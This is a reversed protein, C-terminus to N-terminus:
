KFPKEKMQAFCRTDPAKSPDNFFDVTMQRACASQSPTHSYGAFEYLYGNKLTRLARRGWAPPTNPDFEGAFILTPIDSLLPHWESSSSAPVNWVNCIGLNFAASDLGGFQPFAVHTQFDVIARDALPMGDACWVSYRMGWSLDDPSLDDQAMASLATFDGHAAQFIVRPIQPIQSIDNLASYITEVASRGDFPRSHVIGDKTKIQISIPNRYLAKLLNESNARLNPYARECEFDVACADFVANLARELNANGMEDYPVDPPEVSELLVSRVAVPDTRMVDMMVWTSYSLGYLNWSSLKLAKRLDVLDAAIERTNYASLDVGKSVLRDHCGKAAELEQLEAEKAGYGQLYARQHEEDVEPCLLAPQAYRTGRQEFVIFDRWDLLKISKGSAFGGLSSSGPGGATFIIPDAQPTTRRSRFIMLPLQVTASRPHDRNEPVVLTFCDIWEDKPVKVVCPSPELQPTTAIAQSSRQQAVTVIPSTFVILLAVIALSTRVRQEKINSPERCMIAIPRKVTSM